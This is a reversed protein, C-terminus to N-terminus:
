KVEIEEVVYEDYPNYGRQNKERNMEAARVKARDEDLYFEILDWIEYPWSERIGYVKV